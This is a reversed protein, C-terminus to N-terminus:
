HPTMENTSKNKFTQTKLEIFDKELDDLKFELQFIEKKTEKQNNQQYTYELEKIKKKTTNIESEIWSILNEISNKKM